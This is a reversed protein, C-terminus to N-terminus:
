LAARLMVLYDDADALRPNTRNFYDTAAGAAARALDRETLGVEALAAPLGLRARLRAMALPLDARPRLGFERKIDAYRDGVAPANFDLVLPLLIANVAGHDPAAGRAVSGLAHSMAHVAGLGKQAALAGNLAAAMLERRARPDRSAVTQEVHASARRLGDRAIGDAPPNYATAIYTEICHTLVDMGASAMREPALDLTLTPDCLAVRPLLHASVISVHSGPASAIVAVPSIESCADAATPVAVIPPIEPRIRAAGGRQGAYQELAGDHTVRLGVAKALTIATRGGFGVLGDAESDHWIEAVADCAAETALRPDVPCFVPAVRRGLAARLREVLEPRDADDCLVLPRALGLAELEAELADELVQEAFHIRTVYSILSM